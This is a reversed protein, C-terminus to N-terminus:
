RNNIFFFTKQYSKDYAIDKCDSEHTKCDTVFIPGQLIFSTDVEQGPGQLQHAQTEHIRTDLYWVNGKGNDDDGQTSLVQLVRNPPQVDGVPSQFAIFSNFRAM